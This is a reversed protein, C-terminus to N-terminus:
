PELILRGPVTRSELLRHAEVAEALPLSQTLTRLDGSAILAAVEAIDARAQEAAAARWGLLSFGTMTKLGFMTRIPVNAFEGSAAGYAVVRGLPALLGICALLADGGIADLAVDVGGSAAARM